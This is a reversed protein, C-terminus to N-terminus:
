NEKKTQEREKACSNRSGWGPSASCSAWTVCILARWETRLKRCDKGNCMRIPELWRTLIAQWSREELTIEGKVSIVKYWISHETLPNILLVFHNKFINFTVMKNKCLLSIFSFEYFIISSPSSFEIIANLSIWVKERCKAKCLFLVPTLIVM